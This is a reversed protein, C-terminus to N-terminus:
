QMPLSRKEQFFAVLCWGAKLGIQDTLFDHTSHRPRQQRALAEEVSNAEEIGSIGDCGVHVPKHACFIVARRHVCQRLKQQVLAYM